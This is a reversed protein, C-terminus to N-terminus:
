YISCYYNDGVCFIGDIKQCEEIKEIMYDIKEFPIKDLDTIENLKTAAAKESNPSDSENEELDWKCNFKFTRSVIDIYISGEAWRRTEEM